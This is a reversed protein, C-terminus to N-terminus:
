TAAGRDTADAGAEDPELLRATVRRDAAREHQVHRALAAARDARLVDAAGWRVMGAGTRRMATERLREAHVAGVEDAGSLAYKARGDAEGAVGEAWWADVRGLFVGEADLVTVQWRPQPVGLQHFCWASWSELPSERRGDGLRLVEAARRSGPWGRCREFAEDLDRHTVRGARLAADTIALADRPELTRACDLVTRVPTTVSVAGMAAVETDDLPARRVVLSSSFRSSGVSSVFTVPGLGGLPTPLGWARAAHAHSLVVPRQLSRAAALVEARWRVHADSLDAPSLQGQRLRTWAGRRVLRSIRSDTLGAERALSRSAVVPLPIEVV